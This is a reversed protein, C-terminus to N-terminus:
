IIILYMFNCFSLSFHIKYFIVSCFDTQSGCFYNNPSILFSIPINGKSFFIYLLLLWVFNIFIWLHYLFRVWEMPLNLDVSSLFCKNFKILKGYLKRSLNKDGAHFSFIVLAFFRFKKYIFRFLRYYFFSIGFIHNIASYKCERLNNEYEFSLSVM